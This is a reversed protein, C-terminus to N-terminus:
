DKVCRISFGYSKSCFSRFVGANKYDLCRYGAEEANQATSTWWYGAASLGPDGWGGNFMRCGGAIATFGSENTSWINEYITWSEPSKIKLKEGQNSGRWGTRDAEAQNMGLYKELEKWEEDTPVHWGEPALKAPNNVANWNYLLGPASANNNYICYAGNTDQMWQMSDSQLVAVPSGDRYKKVQLNEAMWWHKGIKVTKYVHNEVDTVSDTQLSVTTDEDKHCGNSLMLILVVFLGAYGCRFLLNKFIVDKLNFRIRIM